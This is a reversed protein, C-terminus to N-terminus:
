YVRQINSNEGVYEPAVDRPPVLTFVEEDIAADFEVDRLRIEVDAAPHAVAVRLQAPLGRPDREDVVVRTSLTGGRWLEATTVRASEPDVEVRHELEGRSWVLRFRGNRDDYSLSADAPVAVEGFLLEVWQEARLGLEAIGLMGDLLEPTAPGYFFRSSKLDSLQAERGNTAFASLVGGHPGMLEVRLAAPRKVALSATGRMRGQKGFYTLRAEATYCEAATRAQQMRSVLEQPGAVALHAPLPIRGACGAALAMGLLYVRANTVALERSM